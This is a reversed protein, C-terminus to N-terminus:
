PREGPDAPGALAALASALLLAGAGVFGAWGGWGAGANLGFFHADAIAQDTHAGIRGQLVALTWGVAVVTALTTGHAVRRLLRGNRKWLPAVGVALLGLLLLGAGFGLDRGLVDQVIEPSATDSPLRTVRLWTGFTSSGVLAGGLMSLTAASGPRIGQEDPEYSPRPLHVFRADVDLIGTGGGDGSVARGNGSPEARERPGEAPYKPTARALEQGVVPWSSGTLRRAVCMSMAISIVTPPSPAGTPPSGVVAIVSSTM